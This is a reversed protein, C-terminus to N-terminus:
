LMLTKMARWGMMTKVKKGRWTMIRCKMMTKMSIM